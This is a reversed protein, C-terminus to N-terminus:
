EIGKNTIPNFHFYVSMALRCCIVQALMIVIFLSHRSTDSIEFGKNTIELAIATIITNLSFFIIFPLLWPFTKYINRLTAIFFSPILFLSIIAIISKGSGINRSNVFGSDIIQQIDSVFGFPSIVLLLCVWFLVFLIYLIAFFSLKPRDQYHM